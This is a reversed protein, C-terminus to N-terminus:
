CFETHSTRLKGGAAVVVAGFVVLVELVRFEKARPRVGNGIKITESCVKFNVPPMPNKCAKHRLVASSSFM